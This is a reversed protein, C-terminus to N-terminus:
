NILVLCNVKSDRNIMIKKCQLTEWYWITGDSCGSLFRHYGVPLFCTIENLPFDITQICERFNWVRIYGKTDGSIFTEDSYKLLCNVSINNNELKDVYELDIWYCIKGDKRGCIITNENFRLISLLQSKSEIIEHSKNEYTLSSQYTFNEWIFLEKDESVSLFKSDSLTLLGNVYDKHHIGEMSFSTINKNEDIKWGLIQHDKGGSIFTDESYKMLCKTGGPHGKLKHLLKGNEYVIIEENVYGTILLNQNFLLACLVEATVVEKEFFLDNWYSFSEKNGSIFKIIEDKQLNDDNGPEIKNTETTDIKVVEVPKVPINVVEIKAKEINPTPNTKITEEKKITNKVTDVPPVIKENKKNEIITNSNGTLKQIQSTLSSIAADYSLKMEKIQKELENLKIKNDQTFSTSELPKSTLKLSFEWHFEKNDSIKHVLKLVIMETRLYYFSCENNGIRAEIFQCCENLNQVNEFAEFTKKLLEMTSEYVYSEEESIMAIHFSNENLQNIQLNFLNTSEHKYQKYQVKNLAIWEFTEM